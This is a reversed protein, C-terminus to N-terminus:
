QKNPMNEMQMYFFERFNSFWKVLQATNNKNFHIDPFYSKLVASSPYRTYFFMLKAKRLHVHTLTYKQQCAGDYAGYDSFEDPNNDDSNNATPSEDRSDVGNGFATSSNYLPHSVMTPPFYSNLQPSSRESVPLSNSAERAASSRPGRVSDTVKSRKKRPGGDDSLNKLPTTTASPFFGSSTFAKFPSPLQPAAPFIGGGNLSTSACAPHSNALAAAAATAALASSNHNQAAAAAAFFNGYNHQQISSTPVIGQGFSGASGNMFAAAAQAARGPYAMQMAEVIRLVNSFSEGVVKDITGSFAGVLEDKLSQELKTFNRQIDQVQQQQPIVGSKDNEVQVNKVAANKRQELLTSYLRRHHFKSTFTDDTTSDLASSADLIAAACNEEEEEPKQEVKENNNNNNNVTSHDVESQQDDENYEEEDEEEAEKSIQGQEATKHELQEEEEGRVDKKYAQSTASVDHDEEAQQHQLLLEECLHSKQFYVPYESNPGHNPEDGISQDDDEEDEQEIKQDDEVKLLEEDCDEYSQQNCHSGHDSLLVVSAEKRLSNLKMQSQYSNRPEGADVRQRCRKMKIRHSNALAAAAAASNTGNVASTALPSSSSLCSINFPNAGGNPFLHSLTNQFQQAAFPIIPTPPPIPGSSM